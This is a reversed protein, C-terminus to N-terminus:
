RCSQSTATPTPKRVKLAMGLNKLLLGLVGTNAIRYLLNGHSARM